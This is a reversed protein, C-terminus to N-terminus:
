TYGRYRYYYYYYTEPQHGAKNVVAGIVNAGVQSLSHKMQSVEGRRVDNEAVVLVVIDVYSALISSDIVGLVPPSDLIIINSLAKLESITEMMKNSKLLTVPNVPIPGSTLVKLTEVPTPQLYQEIGVTTEKKLIGNLKTEAELEGSLITSLGKSNDLGFIMHYQPKRMDSDVLVVKEGGQAIAIALNSSVTSKGEEAKASTFLITRAKQELAAQEIFTALKNYLEYVPSKIAMDLLSVKEDKFDPISIITPLNLYTKIDLTTRITDNLYEVVYGGALGIIIAILMIIPMSSREGRPVPISTKAVKLQVLSQEKEATRTQQLLQLKDLQEQVKSLRSKHDDLIKKKESVKAKEEAINTLKAWGDRIVEELFRNTADILEKQETLQASKEIPLKSTQSKILNTLNEIEDKIGQIEPHEEKYRKSLRFLRTKLQQLETNLLSTESTVPTPSSYPPFHKYLIDTTLIDREIQPVNRVLDNIKILELDNQQKLRELDILQQSKITSQVDPDGMSIDQRIENTYIAVTAAIESRKKDLTEIARAISKQSTEVDYELYSHVLTNTITVVMDKNTHTATVTIADKADGTRKAAIASRIDDPSIDYNFDKKLKNSAIKLVDDSTLVSIRSEVSIILSPYEEPIIYGLEYPSQKFLIDTSAIYLQPKLYVVGVQITIVAFIILIIQLWRRRIIRLYDKLEM